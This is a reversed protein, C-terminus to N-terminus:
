LTWIIHAGDESMKYLNGSDPFYVYSETEPHNRYNEVDESMSSLEDQYPLPHNHIRILPTGSFIDSKERRLFQALTNENFSANKHQTSLVMEGSESILFLWEVNSNDALFKFVNGTEHSGQNIISYHMSKSNKSVVGDSGVTQYKGEKMNGLISQDYVIM